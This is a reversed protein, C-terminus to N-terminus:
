GNVAVFFLRPFPLLVSGDPEPRYAREIAALYRDLFAVREDPDLPALFPRLSTGEFWEVVARPGGALRHFYTTRWLDVTLGLASLQRHYWAPAHRNAWSATADGLRAAWRGDAATARMLRHSPEDLNDPSQVALSGGPGLRAALRPLLAAHDPVWQLSANALILDFPGPDAWRAIDRVAFDLGPLRQRAADIM